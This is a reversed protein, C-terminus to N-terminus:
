PGILGDKEAAEIFILLSMTKRKGGSKKKEEEIQEVSSIEILRRITDLTEKLLPKKERYAPSNIQQSAKAIADSTQQMHKVDLMDIEYELKILLGAIDAPNHQLRNQAIILVCEQHGSFWMQQVTASFIGGGASATPIFITLMFAIINKM